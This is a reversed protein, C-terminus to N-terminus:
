TKATATWGISDSLILYGTSWSDLNPACERVVGRGSGQISILRNLIKPRDKLGLSTKQGPYFTQYWGTSCNTSLWPLVHSLFSRRPLCKCHNMSVLKNVKTIHIHYVLWRFSSGNTGTDPCFYWAWRSTQHVQNHRISLCLSRTLWMMPMVFTHVVAWLVM